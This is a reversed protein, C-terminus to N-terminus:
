MSVREYDNEPWSLPERVTGEGNREWGLGVAGKLTTGKLLNNVTTNGESPLYAQVIGTRLEVKFPVAQLGAGVKDDRFRNGLYDGSM